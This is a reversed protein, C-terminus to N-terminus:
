REKKYLPSMDRLKKVAPPLVEAIKKIDKKTTFRGTTLRLSGHALEPKVGLAKLVHSPELSSSTCASGTSASVGEMDLNIILSEGEVFEVSINLNNPLRKEPHGNLYLHDIRDFLTKRMEERFGALRAAEEDMVEGAIEAARAFGAIAATNETGARMNREQDGGHLLPSLRTGKRVYLIGIGRPGHLKHASASMLDINLEEVKVPIHGFSQVADTHFSIEREAAIEGIERVPQITGIENNAHMISILITKDTIARKVDEPDVLGHRDVPLFTVRFGHAKLFNCPETVSHHETASTIIHDGRSKRLFAVGKIATNNSETGGGTFIIEEPKAGALGAIKERAGDIANKAERGESYISSPNGFKGRLYPEMAKIVEPDTPATAAYDLYARKM